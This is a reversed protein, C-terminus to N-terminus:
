VGLRRIIVVIVIMCVHKSKSDIMLDLGHRGNDKLKYEGCACSPKDCPGPIKPFKRHFKAGFIKQIFFKGKSISYICLYVM